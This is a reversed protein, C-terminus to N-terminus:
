RDSGTMGLDALMNAVRNARLDLGKWTLMGAAHHLAPKDGLVVSHMKTVIGLSPGRGILWPLARAIAIPARPDMAGAARLRKMTRPNVVEVIQRLGDLAGSM